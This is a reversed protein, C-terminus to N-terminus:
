TLVIQKHTQSGRRSATTAIRTAEEAGVRDRWQALAQRAEPPKTANLIATVSPLRVGNADTLYTARGM